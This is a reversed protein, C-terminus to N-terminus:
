QGRIHVKSVAALSAEPRPRPPNCTACCPGARADRAFTAGEAPTAAGASAAAAGESRSMERKALLSCAIRRKELLDRQMLYLEGAVKHRGPVPSAAHRDHRSLLVGGAAGAARCRWCGPVRPAARTAPHQVAQARAVQRQATAAGGRRRRSTSCAPQQALPTRSTAGLVAAGAKGRGADGAGRRKRRKRERGDREEGRRVCRGAQSGGDSDADNNGPPCRGAPAGRV